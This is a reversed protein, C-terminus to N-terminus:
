WRASSTRTRTRMRTGTCCKAGRGAERLQALLILYPGSRARRGKGPPPPGAARRSCRVGVVARLTQRARRLAVPAVEQDPTPQALDDLTAGPNGRWAEELAGIQALSLHRARLVEQSGLPASMDGCSQGDCRWGHM